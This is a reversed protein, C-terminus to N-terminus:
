MGVILVAFSLLISLCHSPCNLVSLKLKKEKSLLYKFIIYVFTICFAIESDGTKLHNFIIQLVFTELFNASLVPVSLM